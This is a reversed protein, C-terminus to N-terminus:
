NQGSRTIQWKVKGALPDSKLAYGKGTNELNLGLVETTPSTFSGSV